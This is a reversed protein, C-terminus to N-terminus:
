NRSVKEASGDYKRRAANLMTLYDRWKKVDSKELLAKAKIIEKKLFKEFEPRREKLDTKGFTLTLEDPSEKGACCRLVTYFKKDFVTKDIEAYWNEKLYERLERQNRMPQLVLQKPVFRCKRLISIIEKGGMGAILLTDARDIGDCGDCCVFQVKAAGEAACLNKAKELSQRSVDGFIVRQALGRRIAEAGAKGHDCGIDALTDTPLM